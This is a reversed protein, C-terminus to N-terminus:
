TNEDDAMIAPANEVEIDGAMGGAVLDHLLQALGKGVFRRRLEQDQVM